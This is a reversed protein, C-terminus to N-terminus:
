HPAIPSSRVVAEFVGSMQALYRQTHLMADEEHQAYEMVSFVKKVKLADCSAADLANTGVFLYLPKQHEQCLQAVGDIVKGQLSQEDLKGEGSIVIDAAAIKAPLDTLKSLTAFGRELTGGLLGVIGAASAGAAGGGQLHDLEIGFQQNILACLHKAGDDLAQIQQASAGKQRAYVQAAGNEGYPPNTVDCLVHFRVGRYTDPPLLIKAVEGLHEGIPALPNGDVDLLKGGLAVIIGLGFDNTASGGLLLYIDKLGQDIAHKVMVGVGLTSTLMPNREEQTLLVLGAASALEIFAQEQNHLYTARIPRGLPDVTMIEQPALGLAQALVELSGDGGDAMPHAEVVWDPAEVALVEAITECIAHASLSGKFKDPALLIKM